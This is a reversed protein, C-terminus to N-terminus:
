RQMVVYSRDFNKVYIDLQPRYTVAFQAFPFLYEGQYILKGNEGEVFGKFKPEQGVIEYKATTYGLSMDKADQVNDPEQHLQFIRSGDENKPFPKLFASVPGNGNWKIAGHYIESLSEDLYDVSLFYAPLYNLEKKSVTHYISVMLSDPNYIQLTVRYKRKDTVLEDFIAAITEQWAPSQELSYQCNERLEKIKETQSSESIGFFANESNGDLGSLESILLEDSYRPDKGFIGFRKINEIQWNEGEIMSNVKQPYCSECDYDHGTTDLINIMEGDLFSRYDEDTDFEDRDELCEFEDEDIRKIAEPLKALSVQQFAVIVGYPYIVRKDTLDGVAKVLVFDEFKKDLLYAEFETYFATRLEDTEFMYLGYWYAFRRALTEADLPEVKCINEPLSDNGLTIQYGTLDLSTRHVTESFPRILENWHTAIVITRIESERAGFNHRILSHYKLVESITQRASADSRKIEIVVFNSYQDECLLDVFGRAGVEDPLYFEKQILKLNPAIFDLHDALWDRINSELQSREAM